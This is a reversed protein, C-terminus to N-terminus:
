RVDSGRPWGRWLALPWAWPWIPNRDPDMAPRGCRGGPWPLPLSAGDEAPACLQADDGADYQLWPNNMM